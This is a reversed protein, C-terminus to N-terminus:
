SQTLRRHWGCHRRRNCYGSLHNHTFAGIFSLASSMLFQISPEWMGAVYCLGAGVVDIVVVVFNFWFWRDHYRAFDPDPKSKIM